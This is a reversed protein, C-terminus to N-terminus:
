WVLYSLCLAPRFPPQSLSLAEEQDEEQTSFALNKRWHETVAGGLTATFHLSVVLWGQDGRCPCWYPKQGLLCQVCSYNMVFIACWSQKASAECDSLPSGYFCPVYSDNDFRLFCLTYLLLLQLHQCHAWTTTQTTKDGKLGATFM